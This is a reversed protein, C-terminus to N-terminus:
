LPHRHGQPQTACLGQHVHRLRRTPRERAQDKREGDPMEYNPYWGFAQTQEIRQLLEFDLIDPIKELRLNGVQYNILVPVFKM